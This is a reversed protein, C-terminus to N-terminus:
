GQARFFGYPKGNCRVSCIFIKSQAAPHHSVLISIANVFNESL